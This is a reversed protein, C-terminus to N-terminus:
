ESELFEPGTFLNIGAVCDPIHGNEGREEIGAFIGILKDSASVPIEDDEKFGLELEVELEVETKVEVDAGTVLEEINAEKRFPTGWEVPPEITSSEERETDTGIGTGRKSEPEETVSSNDDTITGHVTVYAVSPSIVGDVMRAAPEEEEEEEEEEDVGEGAGVAATEAGVGISEGANVSTGVELLVVRDVNSLSVTTQESSEEDFFTRVYTVGVRIDEYIFEDAQTASTASPSHALASIFILVLTLIFLSLLSFSFFEKFSSISPSSTMSELELEPDAEM